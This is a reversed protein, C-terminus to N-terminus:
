KSEPYSAEGKAYFWIIRNMKDDEGGDVENFVELQSQLAYKKAQGKLANLPKNMQDLPINNALATFTKSNKTKQFCDTMLRATADMINMPPLGLIQEITKLM